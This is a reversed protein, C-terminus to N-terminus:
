LTILETNIEDLSLPPLIFGEVVLGNTEGHNNLRRRQMMYKGERKGEVNTNGEIDKFYSRIVGKGPDLLIGAHGRWDPEGNHWKRWIVVSGPVPDEAVTTFRASDKCNAFTQTASGTFNDLIWSDIHKNVQKYVQHWVMKATFMCWAQGKEWNVERMMKEFENKEWGMNGPIEEVGDWRLAFEVIKDLIDM